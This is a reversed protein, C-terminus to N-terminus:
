NQRSLHLRGAALRRREVCQRRRNFRVPGPATSPATWEVTWTLAGRQAAVTGITAHQVFLLGNTKRRSCSSAIISCGGRAPRDAACSEPQSALPSSSGAAGFTDRSLEVTVRYPHGSDFRPPVGTMAAPWGSCEAPQRSPVFSVVARRIRGDHEASARGQVRGDGAAAYARAATAFTLIPM